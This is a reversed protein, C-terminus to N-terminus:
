TDSRHRHRETAMQAPRFHIQDTNVFRECSWLWRGFVVVEVKRWGIAHYTDLSKITYSHCEKVEDGGVFVAFSM